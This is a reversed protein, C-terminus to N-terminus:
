KSCIEDKLQYMKEKIDSIYGSLVVARHEMPTELAKHQYESVIKIVTDIVEEPTVNNVKKAM